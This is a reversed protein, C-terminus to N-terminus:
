QDQVWDRSREVARLWRQHTADATTRDMHPTVEIDLAWNTSIEDLTSL